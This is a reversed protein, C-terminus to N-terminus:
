ADTIGFHTIKGKFNTTISSKSHSLEFEDGETAASIHKIHTIEMVKTYGINLAEMLNEHENIDVPCILNMGSDEARKFNLIMCYSSDDLGM